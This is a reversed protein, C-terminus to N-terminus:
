RKPSSRTPNSNILFVNMMVLFRFVILWMLNVLAHHLEPDKKSVYPLANRGRRVVIFAIFVALIV